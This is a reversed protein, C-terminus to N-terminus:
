AQVALAEEAAADQGRLGRRASACYASGAMAQCVYGDCCPTNTCVSSLGVCGGGGTSVAVAYVPAPTPATVPAPTPAPTSSVPGTGRNIKNGAADRLACGCFSRVNDQATLCWAPTFIGDPDMADNWMQGCQMQFTTDGAVIGTDALAEWLAPDTTWLDSGNTGDNDGCVNSYITYTLSSITLYVTSIIFCM